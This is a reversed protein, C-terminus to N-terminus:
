KRSKRKSRAPLENLAVVLKLDIRKGGGTPAWAHITRSDPSFAMFEPHDIRVTTGNTLVIEFPEFPQAGYLEKIEEANM